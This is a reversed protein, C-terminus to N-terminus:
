TRGLEDQIAKKVVPIVERDVFDRSTVPGYFNVNVTSPMVNAKKRAVSAPVVEEGTHVEAIGGRMVTGGEELHPVVAVAIGKGIAEAVGGLGITQLFKLALAMAFIALTLAGFALSLGFLPIIAAAAGVALALFGVALGLTLPLLILLQPIVGVLALLGASALAIGTGALLFGAGVLFAAVGVSLLAIAVFLLIAALPALAISAIGIIAAFVIMTGMLVLVAGVLNWLLTTIEPLTMKTQSLLWVAASLSLVLVAVAAALELIATAIGSINTGMTPLAETAAKTGGLLSNFFGTIAERQSIIIILAAIAAILGAALVPNAEIWNAIADIVPTIADVLVDLAPTIAEVISQFLEMIPEAALVIGLFIGFIGAVLGMGSLGKMAGKNEKGVKKMKKSSKDAETGEEKIGAAAGSFAETTNVGVKVTEEGGTLFGKIKGTVGSVGGELSGWTSSLKQTVGKFANNTKTALSTQKGGKQITSIYEKLSEEGKTTYVMLAKLSAGLGIQAGKVRILVGYWLNMMGVLSMLKGLLVGLMAIAAIIGIVYVAWPNAELFAAVDELVNAILELLPAFTDGIVTGVDELAYKIDELGVQWDLSGMMVNNLSNLFGSFFQEVSKGIRMMDRGTIRMRMSLNDLQRDMASLQGLDGKVTCLLSIPFNIGAM